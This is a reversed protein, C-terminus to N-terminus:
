TPIAELAAMETILEQIRKQQREDEIRNAEIIHISTQLEQRKFMLQETKSPM